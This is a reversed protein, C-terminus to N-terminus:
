WDDRLCLLSIAGTWRLYKCICSSRYMERMLAVARGIGGIGLSPSLGASTPSDDTGGGGIAGGGGGVPEIPM